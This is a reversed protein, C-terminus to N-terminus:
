VGRGAGDHSYFPFSYIRVTHRIDLSRDLLREFLMGVSGAVKFQRCPRNIFLITVTSSEERYVTTVKRM